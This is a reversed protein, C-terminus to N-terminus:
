NINLNRVNKKPQILILCKHKGIYIHIYIYIYLIYIYIYIYPIASTKKITHYPVNRLFPYVKISIFTNGTNKNNACIPDRICQFQRVWVGSTSVDYIWM